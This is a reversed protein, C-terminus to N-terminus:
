RNVIKTMYHKDHTVSMSYRERCLMVDNPIEVDEESTLIIEKVLKRLKCYRVFPSYPPDCAEWTNDGVGMTKILAIREKKERLKEAKPKVKTKKM